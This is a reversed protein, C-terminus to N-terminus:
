TGEVPQTSNPRSDRVSQVKLDARNAVFISAGYTGMGSSSEAAREEQAILEELKAPLSFHERAMLRRWSGVKIMDRKGMHSFTWLRQSTDSMWRTLMAISRDYANQGRFKAVMQRTIHAVDRKGFCIEIFSPLSRAVKDYYEPIHNVGAILEMLGDLREGVPLQPVFRARYETISKMSNRLKGYAKMRTSGKFDGRLPERGALWPYFVDEEINLAATVFEDFDAWWQYFHAVHSQTLVWKHRQLITAMSYLDKLESKIANHILAFVDVSWKTGWPTLQIDPFKFAIEMDKKPKIKAVRMVVEEKEPPPPPVPIPEANATLSSSTSSSQPASSRKSKAAIKEAMKDAKKQNRKDRWSLKKKSKDGAVDSDNSALLAAKNDLGESM